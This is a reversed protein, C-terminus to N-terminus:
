EAGSGGEDDDDSEGGDCGEDQEDEDDSSQASRRRQCARKPPTREEDSEDSDGGDSDDDGDSDEDSEGSGDEMIAKSLRRRRRPRRGGNDSGEGAAATQRSVGLADWPFPGKLDSLLKRYAAETSAKNTMGGERSTAAGPSPESRHNRYAEVVAKMMPVTPIGKTEIRQRAEVEAGCTEVSIGATMM